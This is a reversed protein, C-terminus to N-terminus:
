KYKRAKALEIARKEANYTNQAITRITAATQNLGAAVSRLHEAVTQGKSVYLSANGSKWNASIDRMCGALNNDALRSIDRAIGELREAQNGSKTQCLQKGVLPDPLSSQKKLKSHKNRKNGRIHNSCQHPLLKEIRVPRQILKKANDPKRRHVPQILGGRCDPRKNKDFQPLM